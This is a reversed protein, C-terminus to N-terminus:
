IPRMSEGDANICTSKRSALLTMSFANGTEDPGAVHAEPDAAVCTKLEGIVQSLQSHTRSMMYIRSIRRKKPKKQKKKKEAQTATAAQEAEHKALPESSAAGSKDNVDDRGENRVPLDSTSSSSSLHQQCREDRANSLRTQNSFRKAMNRDDQAEAKIATSKRGKHTKNKKRKKPSTEFVSEKDVRYLPFTEDQQPKGGPAGPVNEDYALEVPGDNQRQRKRFAVAEAAGSPTNDEVYEFEQFPRRLEAEGNKVLVEKDEGDSEGDSEVSAATEKQHNLWALAACLVAVTKGTGTPSELLCNEGRKLGLLLKSM